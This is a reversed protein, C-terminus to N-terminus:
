PTKPQSTELQMQEAYRVNEILYVYQVNFFNTATKIKLTYFNSSAESSIGAVTGIILKPPFNASYNSTLVTDGVAVKSGKTVNRLILHSPDVGDWEVSGASNDKKMMASVKSNRHLLSMVRSYNPSVEVVVGVIGQPGTVAMGKKVGQAAGRELTLFNSQLTYSSNVVHAPLYTFKRSRGLTDRVLTDIITKVSTDSAQFNSSLMNKLRANEEALQRNIEKLGFYGRLNNYGQNFNGTVENVSSSFFAEHTKSANSLLIISVVQLLLFSLFTFYRRIFLFINKM